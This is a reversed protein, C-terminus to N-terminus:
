LPMNGHKKAPRAERKRDLMELAEIIRMRTNNPEIIDDLYGREASFFASAYLKRYESILVDEERPDDAM